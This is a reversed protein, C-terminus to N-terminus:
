RALLEDFRLLVERVTCEDVGADRLAQEFLDIIASFVFKFAAGDLHLNDRVASSENELVTRQLQRYARVQNSLERLTSLPKCTPRKLARMTKYVSAIGAAICRCVETSSGNKAGILRSIKAL